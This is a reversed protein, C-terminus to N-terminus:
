YGAANGRSENFWNDEDNIAALETESWPRNSSRIALSLMDLIDKKNSQPFMKQEEEVMRMYPELIYIRGQEYAPQLTTRIRADKEGSVYCPHLKIYQNRRNQEERLLGELMKFPGQSELFTGRFYKQFKRADEFIWDFFTPADVYDAHLGLLYHNWKADTALVGEASRSTKASIYRDTAAPDGALVVDMDCLPVPDSLGHTTIFYEEYKANWEM